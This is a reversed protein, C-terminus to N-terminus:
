VSIDRLGFMNNTGQLDQLGIIKVGVTNGNFMGWKLDQLGINTVSYAGSNAFQGVDINNSGGTNQIASTGINFRAHDGSNQGQDLKINRSGFRNDLGNSLKPM